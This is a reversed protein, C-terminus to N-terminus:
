ISSIEFDSISSLIKYIIKETKNFDSSKKYDKDLYLKKNVEIMITDVRNDNIFDTPIISGQYPNNISYTYGNKSITDIVAQVLENSSQNKNTGICFDVNLNTNFSHCDIVVVRPILTLSKRVLSNLNKHHKNYVNEILFEKDIVKIDNRSIGKTYCIGQGSAFMEEENDPLREVDCVFRSVTQVIRDSNEHYFLENTYWDTLTNIDNKDIHRRLTDTGSHPIHLIM